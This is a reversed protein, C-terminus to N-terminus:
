NQAANLLAEARDASAVFCSQGTQGAFVLWGTGGDDGRLELAYSPSRGRHLRVQIQGSRHMTTGVIAAYVVSSTSLNSAFGRNSHVRLVSHADLDILLTAAHGWRWSQMRAQEDMRKFEPISHTVDRFSSRRIWPTVSVAALVAIIALVAVVEVITFGRHTM